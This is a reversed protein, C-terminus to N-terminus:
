ASRRRARLILYGLGTLTLWLTTPEPVAATAPRPGQEYGGDSFAAVFDSSDFESDGNWDGSTWTSNGAIGDEYEGQTFTEVLDGSNFEGDLNSDGMWTMATDHVFAIRDPLNTIADIRSALDGGGTLIAQLAALDAADTTGDQNLDGRSYTTNTQDLNANLRDLDANDVVGDANFDGPLFIGQVATADASTGNSAGIYMAPTANQWDFWGDTFTVDPDSDPNPEVADDPSGPDFIGEYVINGVKASMKVERSRVPDANDPDNLEMKWSVELRDDYAVGANHRAKFEVDLDEGSSIRTATFDMGNRDGQSSIATGSDGSQATFSTTDERPYAYWDTDGTELDEDINAGIGFHLMVGDSEWNGTWLDFDGSNPDRVDVFNQPDELFAFRVDWDRRDNSDTDESVDGTSSEGDIVPGFNVLNDAYSSTSPSNGIYVGPANFGTDGNNPGGQHLGSWTMSTPNGADNEITQIDPDPFSNAPQFKRYISYAGGDAANLGFTGYLAQGDGVEIQGTDAGADPAFVQANLGDAVVGVCLAITMVGTLLKKGM